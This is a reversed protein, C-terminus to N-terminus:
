RRRMLRKVVATSALRVRLLSLWSPKPAVTQPAFFSAADRDFPRITKFRHPRWRQVVPLRRVAWRVPGFLVLGFVVYVLIDGIM